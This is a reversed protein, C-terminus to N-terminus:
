VNWSSIIVSEVPRNAFKVFSKLLQTRIFYVGTTLSVLLMFFPAAV